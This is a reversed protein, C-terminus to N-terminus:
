CLGFFKSLNSYQSEQDFPPTKTSRHISSSNTHQVRLTRQVGGNDTGGRDAPPTEGIYLASNVEHLIPTQPRAGYGFSAEPETKPEPM